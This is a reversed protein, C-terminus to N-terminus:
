SGCLSQGTSEDSVDDYLSGLWADHCCLIVTISVPRQTQLLTQRASLYTTQNLTGRQRHQRFFTWIVSSGVDGPLEGITTPNPPNQEIQRDSDINNFDMSCLITMSRSHLRRISTLAMIALVDIQHDVM